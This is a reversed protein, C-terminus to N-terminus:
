FVGISARPRDDDDFHHVGRASFHFGVLGPQVPIQQQQQHQRDRLLALRRRLGVHDPRDAMGDCVLDGRSTRAGSRPQADEPLGAIVSEGIAHHRLRRSGLSGLPSVRLCHIRAPPTELDRPASLLDGFRGHCAPCRHGVPYIVCHDDVPRTSSKASSRLGCGWKRRRCYSRCHTPALSGDHHFAAHYSSVNQSSGFFTM